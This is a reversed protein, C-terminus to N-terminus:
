PSDELDIQFDNGLDCRLLDIILTQTRESPTSLFTAVLDVEYEGDVLNLDDTFWAVVSGTLDV